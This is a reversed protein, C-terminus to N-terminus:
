GKKGPAVTATVDRLIRVQRTKVSLEMGVGSVSMGGDTFRVRDDTVVLSRNSQYSARGTTFEMGSESKAVVNGTLAVNKAANFYDAQDSVLTIEGSKGREHLVLRVDTLRTVDRAKDYEGKGAYLDWQRVGDKTETYHIKSLSIEVNRPLAPLGEDKKGGAGLKLALSVAIYLTALVIVSALIHRIKNPKVM